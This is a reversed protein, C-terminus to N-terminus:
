DCCNTFINYKELRRLVFAFRIGNKFREINDYHIFNEIM